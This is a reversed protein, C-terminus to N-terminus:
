KTDALGPMKFKLIVEGTERDLSVMRGSPDTAELKRGTAMELLSGIFSMGQNLVAEMQEPSQRVPASAAVSQEDVIEEATPTEGQEEGTYDAGEKEERLVDPNLFYPTDEPIELAPLADAVPAALEEDIMERLKNVMEQRKEQDFMVESAGGDFVSDFLESKLQIGALIREEISRKCILNIVNICASKQGIRHVRGIRQNLKAPNWPLEFNIVSDAAQLNLGTGGADTSLFVKCAPNNTFEDILAQRKPVPVKGTLEVFSIGARSLQKGILATMTTWESFIVVKRRNQIVLEDVIGELENLKPSINSERDILYTSDCVQRMKLLLMQIRRLDMPTLFKKNLLPLLSQSFGAHIEAQEQHLDLFYDNRVQEPLQEMVEEKRRRIVLSQLRAHLKDLNRYGLIKDKKHRSLLFHDAAFHWLPSLLDPDLFQVISYVDELKNELPTGTLILAHQRPLRKVAEATKTEFNKIRQAEDLIILDPHFRSIIAGDRLVAEYNAIKFVSESDNYQERRQKVSGAVITAKEHTFREIERQWQQKLSSLTIVLVKSFGFIEKKLVALAIAQLTKGLGMEDGILAAKKYLCFRIGAEQYPYPAVKLLHSFDPLTASAAQRLEHELAAGSIKQMVPEQIRVVKYAELEQIFPIFELIDPNSFLGNGDFLDELRTALEASMAAPREHFIRPRDAVSDWFIDVYPFSERAAKEKFQSKKRLLDALHLLHKCSGLRNSQYDPCSCHGAATAPDHLTVQYQRGKPTKVLHDGKFMDGLTVVFQEGAARKRRDELAQLRIEDPTLYAEDKEPLVCGVPKRGGRDLQDLLVAVAHKCGAGPYPCNCSASIAGNWRVETRYDGYNGEVEYLFRHDVPDQELCRFAGGQSLGLGREFIVRSDAFARIDDVTLTRM